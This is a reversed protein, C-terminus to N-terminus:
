AAKTGALAKTATITAAFSEAIEAESAGSRVLVALGGTAVIMFAATRASTDASVFRRLSAAMAARGGGMLESALRRWRPDAESAEGLVSAVLCGRPAAGGGVNRRVAAFYGEIASDIDSARELAEGYAAGNTAEYRRVAKEFLDAKDGFAAYLSPRNIGMATTLAELSAGEYGHKWFTCIAADLAKEPDFGRPRGAPM